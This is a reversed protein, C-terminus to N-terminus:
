DGRDVQLSAVPPDDFSLSLLSVRRGGIAHAKGGLTTNTHLSFTEGAGTAPQWEFVLEADGAWICQQGPRCRSDNAVERFQLTGRDALPAGQQPRLNFAEGDTVIPADTTPAPTMPGPGPGDGAPATGCAALPLLALLAFGRLSPTAPM